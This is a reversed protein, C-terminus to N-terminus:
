AIIHMLRIHKIIWKDAYLSELSHFYSLGCDCIKVNYSSKNLFFESIPICSLIIYQLMFNLINCKFNNLMRIFSVLLPFPCQSMKNSSTHCVSSSGPTSSLCFTWCEWGIDPEGNKYLLKGYIFNHIWAYLLSSWVILGNWSDALVFIFWDRPNRDWRSNALLYELSKSEWFITILFFINCLPPRYHRVGETWSLTYKWRKQFTLSKWSQGFKWLFHLL